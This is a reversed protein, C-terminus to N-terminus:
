LKGVTQASWLYDGLSPRDMSNWLDAIQQNTILNQRLELVERKLAAVYQEKGVMDIIERYNIECSFEKNLLDIVDEVQHEQILLLAATAIPDEKAAAKTPAVFEIGGRKFNSEDWNTIAEKVSQSVLHPYTKALRVLHEVAENAMEIFKSHDTM